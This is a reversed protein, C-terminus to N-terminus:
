PSSPECHRDYRLERSVNVDRLDGNKAPALGPLRQPPVNVMVVPGPVEGRVARSLKDANGVRRRPQRQVLGVVVVARGRVRQARDDVARGGAPAQEALLVRHPDVLPRLQELVPVAGRAHRAAHEELMYLLEASPQASLIWVREIRVGKDILRSNQLLFNRGDDSSWWITDGEDTTGRVFQSAHEFRDHVLTNDSGARRLRGQALEQLQSTAHHFVNFVELKLQPTHAKDLTRVSADLAEYALDLLDPYDEVGELLKTYRERAQTRETVRFLMELQLALVAGILGICTVILDKLADNNSTTEFFTIATCVITIVLALLALYRSSGDYWRRTGPTLSPHTRM